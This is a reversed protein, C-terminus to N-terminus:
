RGVCIMEESRIQGCMDDRQDPPPTPVMLAGLAHRAGFEELDVEGSGIPECVNETSRSIRARFSGHFAYLAGWFDLIHRSRGDADMEM